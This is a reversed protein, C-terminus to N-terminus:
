QTGGSNLLTQEAQITRLSDFFGSLQPYLENYRELSEPFKEEMKDIQAVVQAAITCEDNSYKIAYEKNIKNGMSDKGAGEELAKKLSQIQTRSKELERILDGYVQPFNKIYNPIDRYQSLLFARDKDMEGEYVDAILKMELKIKAYFGSISDAPVARYRIEASDLVTLTSDLRAIEEKYRTKPDCSSLAIGIISIFLIISFYKM